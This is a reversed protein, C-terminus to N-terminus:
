SKRIELGSPLVAPLTLVVETALSIFYFVVMYYLMGHTALLEVKQHLVMGVALPIGMRLMMGAVMSHLALAPGHFFFNVLLAVLAAVVCLGAAVAAALLGVRGSILWAVPAVLFYSFLVAAILLGVRATM